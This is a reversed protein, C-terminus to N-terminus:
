LARSASAVAICPMHPGEPKRIPQEPQGTAVCSMVKGAPLNGSNAKQNKGMAAIVAEPAIADIPWFRPMVAVSVVRATPAASRPTPYSTPPGNVALPQSCM